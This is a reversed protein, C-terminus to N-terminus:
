HVLTAKVEKHRSPFSFDLDLTYEDRLPDHTFRNKEFRVGLEFSSSEFLEGRGEKIFTVIARGNEYLQFSFGSYDSPFPIDFLIRNKWKEYHNTYYPSFPFGSFWIVVFSFGSEKDEADFYWWEYAGPDQMKHWLEQDLQTTINM